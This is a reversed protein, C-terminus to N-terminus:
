FTVPLTVKDVESGDKASITFVELSGSTDTAHVFPLDISFSGFQGVDPSHAMTTTEVLVNGNADLLRLNVVNEFVRAQGQVTLPSTVNAYPAPATVRINESETTVPPRDNTAPANSTVSSNDTTGPAPTSNATSNSM